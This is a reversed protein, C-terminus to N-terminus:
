LDVDNAVMMRVLAAFGVRPRWDLRQRAKSPDGELADVETPRLYRQDLEVQRRWDLGAEAFALEVLERVTHSEGTAVVYDDPKDQQLMLWMAEVYDGAFGWARRAALNGLFLKDQLGEKIRGVARTVKRSVFTEGRRPSEHNFLIGNCIFLGYAERYNIAYWHAAVKSVAYPSRPEFPTKEHQPPKAGGFMESSGAQYFRVKRGGHAVHDRLAELLRLTGLADIDATYEPVEFSVKVHSQAGLNYVEDPQVKELVRRLATGDSLDGYHLSLNAGAVHPDHYLHDIRDTNFLSARRLMGDVAYGKGLLFETLYAGDQGTIGTILARKVM